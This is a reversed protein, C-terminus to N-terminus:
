IQGITSLAWFPRPEEVLEGCARHCFDSTTPRSESGASVREHLDLATYFGRGQLRTYAHRNMEDWRASVRKMEETM